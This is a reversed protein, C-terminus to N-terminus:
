TCLTCCFCWVKKCGSWPVGAFLWADESAIIFLTLLSILIDHFHGRVLLLKFIKFSLQVTITVTRKSKSSVEVIMPLSIAVINPNCPIMQSSFRDLAIDVVFVNGKVILLKWIDEDECVFGIFNDLTHTTSSRLMGKEFTDILKVFFGRHFIWYRRKDVALLSADKIIPGSIDSNWILRSFLCPFSQSSM